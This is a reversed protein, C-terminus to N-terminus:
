KWPYDMRLRNYVNEFEERINTNGLISLISGIRKRTSKYSAQAMQYNLLKWWINEKQSNKEHQVFCGKYMYSEYNKLKLQKKKSSKCVLTM